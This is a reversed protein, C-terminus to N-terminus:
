VGVCMTRIVTTTMMTMTTCGEAIEEGLIEQGASMSSKRTPGARIKFCAGWPRRRGARGPGYRPAVQGGFRQARGSLGGFEVAHRRVIASDNERPSALSRYRVPDHRRLECVKVMTMLFPVLPSRITSLTM